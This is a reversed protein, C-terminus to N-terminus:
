NPVNGDSESTSLHEAGAQQYLTHLAAAGQQALRYWEPKAVCAPHTVVHRELMDVLLAVRDVFEHCGFTGPLYEKSWGDGSEAALEDAQQQRDQEITNPSLSPISM